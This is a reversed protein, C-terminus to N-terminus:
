VFGGADILANNPATFTGGDILVNSTTTGVEIASITVEGVGSTPSISINSGALIKTVASGLSGDAKLFQSATGGTVVFSTAEIPNTTVSGLDTVQQLNQPSLQTNVDELDLVVRRLRLEEDRYKQDRTQKWLLNLAIAQKLIEQKTVEFAM